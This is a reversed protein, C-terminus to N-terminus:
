ETRGRTRAALESVSPRISLILIRKSVNTMIRSQAPVRFSPRAGFAVFIQQKLFIEIVIKNDVSHHARRPAVALNVIMRM